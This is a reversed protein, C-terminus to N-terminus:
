DRIVVAFQDIRFNSKLFDGLRLWSEYFGANGEIEEPVFPVIYKDLDLAGVIENFSLASNDASILNRPDSAHELVGDLWDSFKMPNEEPRTPTSHFCLDDGYVSFSYNHKPTTVSIHPPISVHNSFAPIDAMSIGGASNHIFVRRISYPVLKWFKLWAFRASTLVHSRYESRHLFVPCVYAVADYKLVNKVRNRLKFLVNHQLFAPSARGRHLKFYLSYPLTELPKLFSRRDKVIKSSSLADYACPRKFQIYFPFFTKIGKSLRGDAGIRREHSKTFPEISWKAFPFGVTALYSEIAYAVTDESFDPKIHAM